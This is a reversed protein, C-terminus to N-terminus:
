CIYITSGCYPYKQGVLCQCDECYVATIDYLLYEAQHGIMPGLINDRRGGSKNLKSIMSVLWYYALSCNDLFSM